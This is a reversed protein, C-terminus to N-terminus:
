LSGGTAKAIAARADKVAKSVSDLYTSILVVQGAESDLAVIRQLAELLEPAAAILRADAGQDEIDKMTCVIQGVELTQFDEDWQADATAIFRCDHYPHKGVHEPDALVIWPGPTHKTTM